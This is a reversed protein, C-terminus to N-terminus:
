ISFTYKISRTQSSGSIPMFYWQKINSALIKEFDNNGVHAKNKKVEAVAGKADVTLTYTISGHLPELMGTTFHRSLESVVLPAYYRSIVSRIAGTDSDGSNKSSFAQRLESIVFDGFSTNQKCEGIAINDIIEVSGRPFFDALANTNTDYSTYLRGDVFLSDHMKKLEKAFVDQSMSIINRQNQIAASLSAIYCTDFKQAFAQSKVLADVLVTGSDAGKLKFPNIYGTQIHTCVSTDGYPLWLTLKNVQWFVGNEKLEIRDSVRYPKQPLQEPETHQWYGSVKQKLYKNEDNSSSSVDGQVSNRDFQSNIRHAIRSPPFMKWVAIIGVALASFVAVKIIVGTKESNKM